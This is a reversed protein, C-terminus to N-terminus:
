KSNHYDRIFGLTMWNALAQRNNNLVYRWQDFENQMNALEMFISVPEAYRMVTLNRTSVTGSFGRGPQVIEYRDTFTDRMTEALRRSKTRNKPKDQYYFFVDLQKKRSRSDLHIFVARQYTEKAKASLSNIKNTRQRLRAIQDSPILQGMCTERKSNNLYKDDRIGDAPDQIIIYVTAGHQLLNRALRLTIDYAYEDEHLEWGNVRAIAGCDPGGHGSSLFFCAGALKQDAIAYHAYQKGFLPQYGTKSKESKAPQPKINDTRKSTDSVKINLPKVNDQTNQKDPTKLKEAVPPLQYYVGWLLAQKKGFRGKNIDVFVPYHKNEDRNHRRLFAYGGEGKLPKDKEQATVFFTIPLCILICYIRLFRM